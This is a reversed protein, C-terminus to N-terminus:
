TRTGLTHGEPQNQNSKTQDVDFKTWVDHKIPMWTFLPTCVRIEKFKYKFSVLM